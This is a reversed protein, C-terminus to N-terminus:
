FKRIFIAYGEAQASGCTEQFIEIFGQSELWPHVESYLPINKYTETFAIKTFLVKVTKLLMPASKIVQLEAGQMDLWLLDIHNVNNLQGWEDLNITQVEISKNFKVNTYLKLHDKPELLSSSRSIDSEPDSSLHFQARGSQDSLALQYCHVNKCNFTKAKTKLFLLPVPEFGYIEGKPWIQTMTVMDEGDYCGAVLVVPNEPLFSKIRPLLRHAWVHTHIFVLTLLILKLKNM